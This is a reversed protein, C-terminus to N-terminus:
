NLPGQPGPLGYYQVGTKYAIAVLGRLMDSSPLSGPRFQAQHIECTEDDRYKYALWARGNIDVVWASYVERHWPLESFTNTSRAILWQAHRRPEKAPDPEIAEYSELTLTYAYAPEGPNEQHYQDAARRMFGPYQHDYVDSAFAMHVPVRFGDGDRCLIEFGHMSDWQNGHAEVHDRAIGALKEKIQASM